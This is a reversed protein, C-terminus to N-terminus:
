SRAPITATAARSRCLWQHRHANRPTEHAERLEMMLDLAARNIGALRARDYGVKAAWDPNARWTPSELVFGHGRKKAIAIYREYYDVLARRGKDSEMLVFSEFM